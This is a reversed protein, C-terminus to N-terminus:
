HPSWVFCQSGFHRCDKVPESVSFFWALQLRVMLSSCHVPPNHWESTVNRYGTEQSRRWCGSTVTPSSAHATVRVKKPIRSGSMSAPIPSDSPSRAKAAGDERSM